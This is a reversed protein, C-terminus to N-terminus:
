ALRVSVATEGDRVQVLTFPGFRRLAEFMEVALSLLEKLSAHKPVNISHKAAVRRLVTSLRPFCWALICLGRLVESVFWM